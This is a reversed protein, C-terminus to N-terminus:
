VQYYWLMLCLLNKRVTLELNAAITSDSEQDYVDGLQTPLYQEEDMIIEVEVIRDCPVRSIM